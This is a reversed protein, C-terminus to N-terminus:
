KGCFLSKVFTRRCSQWRKNFTKPMQGPKLTARCRQYYEIDTSILVRSNGHEPCHKHLFVRGDQFVVKASVTRLCDPCLSQTWDAYLYPRDM